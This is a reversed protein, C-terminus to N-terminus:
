RKGWQGALLRHQRMRGADSREVAIKRGNTDIGGAYMATAVTGPTPTFCQVQRPNWGRKKLWDALARMDKETCGPFASILYPLVYHKHGGREREETFKQIFEEFVKFSPKRMLKLVQESCHEPAIKLQGGTFCRLLAATYGASRRALDYRVGSAVRVHRVGPQRAIDNLMEALGAQADVFEPCIDPWMCSARRCGAANRKCHAGWMNASPGGVDSLSGKWDRHRTLQKAENCVSAASRSHIIRGQHMALACFSCGGACGRHTTISFQLMEAAPVPERYVPHARRAFPMAYLEDLQATALPRAPPHIIVAQGGARQGLASTGNLCQQEISLTAQMLLRPDATIDDFSPLWEIADQEATARAGVAEVTGDIGSLAAAGSKDSLRDAIELLANEAMGYVLLDAKSDLLIPRRMADSWFDYHVARRMSAEIGGIIVPLGPFAQRVLGSYVITARNPRRGSKGGPTYADDSRKKRFPTYHALMSDLAGATIGAFLRPRGLQTIEATSRWDPQAIIATRYGHSILFRALLAPGCAPHDILADGSVILIDVEKWGLADMERKSMPPFVPQDISKKMM